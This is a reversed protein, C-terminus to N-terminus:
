QEFIFFGGRTLQSVAKLFLAKVGTDGYSLHIWKVTSLCLIIEFKEDNPSAIYNETRYNLKGYITSKVLSM